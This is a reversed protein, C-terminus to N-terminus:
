QYYGANLMVQRRINDPLDDRELLADSVEAGEDLKGPLYCTVISIEYDFGWSYAKYELFLTDNPKKLTQGIKALDYARQHYSKIRLLETAAYLAEGRIPRYRWADMWAAITEEFLQDKRKKVEELSLEDPNYKKIYEKENENLSLPDKTLLLSVEELQWFMKKLNNGIQYKSYYIEEVWGNMDICRQYTKSSMEYEGLCNYTQALYFLYRIKLGEVLESNELEAILLRKDRQFKDEKCGGDELDNIRITKMLIRQYNEKCNEFKENKVVQWYEHTVGICEWDLDNRLLRTNDYFLDGHQQTVQFEAAFLLKKNFLNTVEWVFDADSLLLYSAQPFSQKAMRASHTRNYGFNKFPEHHIKYPIKAEMCWTEIIIPTDDTSGTDVISVFDIISKLSELLRVMNQSENKVIMTLCLTKPRNRFQQQLKERTPINKHM